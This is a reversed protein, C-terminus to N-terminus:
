RYKMSGIYRKKRDKKRYKKFNGKERRKMEKRIKFIKEKIGEKEQAKMM